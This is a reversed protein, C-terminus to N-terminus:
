DIAGPARNPSSLRELALEAAAQEARRRSSGVGETTGGLAAVECRVTFVQAHPEGAIGEVTYTPLALGQGQLWEQLRTKADKVAAISGLAGFRSDLLAEVVRRAVDPGGDLYLAGILAELADALISRRRFGGSKLEGGGLNLEDGVGLSTAIDALTEGNVLHARYRSLLGEDARPFERYLREAVVLSLVADGLFELRENHAGGHSRHTLAAIFLEPRRCQYGLRRGVFAQVSRRDVAM